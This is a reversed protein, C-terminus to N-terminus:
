VGCEKSIRAYAASSGQLNYTDKTKTGKSSTGSVVMTKGERIARAIKADTEPNIAWANGDKTFLVFKQGDVELLAEAAPKYAYGSIYTFVDRSGDSPRHTILVHIEGRSKYKGEDKKPTGAIYCVKGGGDDTFAYAEWNGYTQLLRPEGAMARFSFGSFVTFIVLVLFYRNLM